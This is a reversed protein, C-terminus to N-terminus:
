VFETVGPTAVPAVPLDKWEYHPPTLDLKSNMAQEWTLTKGTYASMRAAIALMTSQSMYQGNNIPNGSRISAFFADHEAQYMNTDKDRFRWITEGQRDYIRHKMIEARGKTGFVYDSVDRSCGNQQRCSAFGKVGNEFEYVASFHDFINGWKADTRVQRGGTATVKVPAADGMAWGLKDLSHVHQETNHDGSLWTYYLWNRMQTEMESWQVGAPPTRHWLESTNYTVQVSIIDGILGNHVQEMTARKAPQYRYCLGSVISLGKESRFLM